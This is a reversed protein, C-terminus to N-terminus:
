PTLSAGAIVTRVARQSNEWAAWFRPSSPEIRDTALRHLWLYAERTLLSVHPITDFDEKLFVHHRLDPQLFDNAFGAIQATNTADLTIELHRAIREMQGQPDNMLLDYDAVVFPRNAIENLYPVLYVLWLMHSTVPPMFQRKLLSSAVSLPNRISVVYTDDVDLQQFVPRWFPLLRVTRPDKFGWLPHSIFQTELYGAAEMRLAQVKPDQWQAEEILAVEEWKLGFVSLVRDNLEVINRDEWYGTPNDPKTDLFSDGLYVGLAQLGRSFASTGSRHMGLIVVAKSSPM